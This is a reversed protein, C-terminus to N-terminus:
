ACSPLHSHTRALPNSATFRTMFSQLMTMVTFYLQLVQSFSFKASIKFFYKPLTSLKSINGMIQCRETEQSRLWSLRNRFCRYCLESFQCIHSESVAQINLGSSDFTVSQWGPSLALRCKENRVNPCEPAWDQAGSHGFTLNFFYILGPHCQDSKYIYCDSAM